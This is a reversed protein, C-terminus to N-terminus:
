ILLYNKGPRRWDQYQHIRTAFFTAPLKDPFKCNQFPTEKQNFFKM